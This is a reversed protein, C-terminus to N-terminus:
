LLQQWFSRWVSAYSNGIIRVKNRWDKTKGSVSLFIHGQTGVVLGVPQLAVHEAVSAGASPQAITPVPCCGRTVPWDSVAPEVWRCGRIPRLVAFHPLEQWCNLFLPMARTCKASCARRQTVQSGIEYPIHGILHSVRESMVSCPTIRNMCSVQNWTSLLRWNRLRM